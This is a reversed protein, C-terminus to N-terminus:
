EWPLIQQFPTMAHLALHHGVVILEHAVEEGLSICQGVALRGYLQPSLVDWVVENRVLGECAHVRVRSMRNCPNPMAKQCGEILQDPNNMDLKGDKPSIALNTIGISSKPATLKVGIM